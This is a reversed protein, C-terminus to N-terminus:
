SACDLDKNKMKFHGTSKFPPKSLSDSDANEKPHKRKLHSFLNTTNQEDFNVSLKPKIFRVSCLWVREMVSYPFKLM